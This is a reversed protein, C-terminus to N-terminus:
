RSQPAETKLITWNSVGLFRDVPDALKDARYGEASRLQVYIFTPRYLAIAPADNRWQRLFAQYKATRLEEDGRTRGSELAADVLSNKYESLNFGSVGAQSSHWYVFVDPDVGQDIGMLLLQYAHPQIFDQQLDAPGVFQLQLQIGYERWQRQIEEAVLPYEDSNQTVLSLTLQSGSKNKRLGDESLKWGLKDLQESGLSPNHGLQTLKQEYGLQEPLLPADSSSYAAAVLEFIARHDTIRTLAQRLQKDKLLSNSNNMFLMVNNYLPNTHVKQRRAENLEDLDSVRLNAAGTVSGQNLASVLQEHDAFTHIIIDDLKPAGLYYTDSGLLRVQGYDDELSISSFEFPGSAVDPQLNFPHTRLEKPNVGGLIHAPLVGVRTLSHLFPAFSNPLTFTITADDKASVEIDRWSQNFHSGTDPHQIANITFVVDRATIPMGDHWALGPRLKITYVTQDDNISWGEAMAGILESEQNYRLLPEFLLASVTREPSSTAFIPNLNAVQGVVGETYTGGAVPTDELYYGKLGQAQVIIGAMLLSILLLWGAVFRRVDIFKQWRRVVHRELQEGLQNQVEEMSRQTVRLRRRMRLRTSKKM